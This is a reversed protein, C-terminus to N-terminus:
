QNDTGPIQTRGNNKQRNRNVFGRETSRMVEKEQETFGQFIMVSTNKLSRSATNKKREMETRKIGMLGSAEKGPM